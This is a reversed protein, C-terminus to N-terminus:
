TILRLKIRNEISEGGNTLPSLGGPLFEIDFDDTSMYPSLQYITQTRLEFWNARTWPEVLVMLITQRSDHRQLLNFPTALLHVLLLDKGLVLSEYHTSNSSTIFYLIYTPSRMRIDPGSKQGLGGGLIGIMIGVPVVVIM